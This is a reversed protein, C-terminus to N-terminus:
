NNLKRRNHGVMSIPQNISKIANNLSKNTSRAYYTMTTEICTHGALDMVVNQPNGAEVLRTIFTHRTAYPTFDDPLNCREKYRKFLTRRRSNGTLFMRGGRRISAERRQKAIEICRDTLPIPVSWKGTKPRFFTVTNNKFNVNNVAKIGQFNKSLNETYLLEDNLIDM